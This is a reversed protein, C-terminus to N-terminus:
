RANPRRVRASGRTRSLRPVTAVAVYGRALGAYAYPDGPDRDIAKQLYSIGATPTGGEDASTLEHMGRLFLEYTEPTITARSALRERDEPRLRLQIAQAIASVM